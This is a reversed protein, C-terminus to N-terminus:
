RVSTTSKIYALVAKIPPVTAASRSSLSLFTVVSFTAIVQFVGFTVFGLAMSSWGPIALSTTLRLIIIGVGLLGLCLIVFAALILLRVFAVDSFTAIAGLGHNVLSVLNMKSQGLWRPMRDVPVKIIPIKSKMISASYHNWLEPMYALRMASQYSMASFNGFDLNMDILTLFLLKYIQYSLQFHRSESRKRRKAVIVSDPHHVLENLLKLADVPADEGDSDIVIIAEADGRRVIECIGIAIARQHGLNCGLHIIEVSHISPPFDSDILPCPSSSGDNVILLSLRATQSHLYGLNQALLPICQWDNFMPAVVVVNLSTSESNNFM